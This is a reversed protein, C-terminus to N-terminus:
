MLGYEVRWKSWDWDPHNSLYDARAKEMRAREAKTVGGVPGFARLFERASTENASRGTDELYREFSEPMSRAKNVMPKAVTQHRQQARSTFGRLKAKQNRQWTDFQNYNRFPQGTDPDTIAQARADRNARREAPSLAM